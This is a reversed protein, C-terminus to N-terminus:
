DAHWGRINEVAADTHGSEQTAGSTAPRRLGFCPMLRTLTCISFSSAHLAPLAAFRLVAHAVTAHHECPLIRAYYRISDARDPEDALYSGLATAMAVAREHRGSGSLDLPDDLAPSNEAADALVDLPSSWAPSQGVADGAVAEGSETRRSEDMGDSSADSSADSISTTPETAAANDAGADVRLMWM